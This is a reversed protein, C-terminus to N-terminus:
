HKAGRPNNLEPRTNVKKPKRKVKKEVEFIGMNMRPVIEPNYLEEQEEQEGEQEQEEESEEEEYDYQSVDLKVGRDPKYEYREEVERTQRERKGQKRTANGAFCDMLNLEGVKRMRSIKERNKEREAEAEADMRSVLSLLRAKALQTSSKKYSWICFGEVEPKAVVSLKYKRQKESMWDSFGSLQRKNFYAIFIGCRVESRIEGLRKIIPGIKDGQVMPLFEYSAKKSMIHIFLFIQKIQLFITQLRSKAVRM